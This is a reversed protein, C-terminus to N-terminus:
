PASRRKCDLTGRLTEACVMTSDFSVPRYGDLDSVKVLLAKASTRTISPRTKEKAYGVHPAICMALVTSRFLIRLAVHM